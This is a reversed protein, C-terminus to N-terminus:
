VPGNNKWLVPEPWMELKVKSSRQVLKNYTTDNSGVPGAMIVESERIMAIKIVIRTLLTSKIVFKLTRSTIISLKCGIVTLFFLISAISQLFKM